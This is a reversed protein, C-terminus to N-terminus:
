TINPFIYVRFIGIILVLGILSLLYVIPKASLLEILGGFIGQHFSDMGSSEAWKAYLTHDSGFKFGSFYSSEFESDLYWGLFIYGEKELTPPELSDTQQPDVTLDDFGTDFTITYIVEPEVVKEWKAYLTTDRTWTYDATYKLTYSSDFYWGLFTYGVYEPSPYVFESVLQPEIILDDFGTVFSVVYDQAVEEWKAYLTTDATFEYNAVYEVTLAEDLYWGKFIYGDKSVNPLVFSDSSQDPLDIDDFGTVFSIIYVPDPEPEREVGECDNLDLSCVECSADVAGLACKYTCTCEPDPEPEDAGDYTSDYFPDGNLYTIDRNAWVITNTSMLNGGSSNAGEPVVVTWPVGNYKDINQSESFGSYHLAGNNFYFSHYDSTSYMLVYSNYQNKIVVVTNTGNFLDPIDTKVLVQNGDDLTITHEYAYVSRTRSYTVVGSAGYTVPALIGTTRHSCGYDHEISDDDYITFVCDSCIWFDDDAAYVSMSLCLAICLSFILIKTSM